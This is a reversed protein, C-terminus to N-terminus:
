RGWTAEEDVERPGSEVREVSGDGHVRDVYLSDDGTLAVPRKKIFKTYIVIGM